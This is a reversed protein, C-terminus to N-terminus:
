LEFQTKLFRSFTLHIIVEKLAYNISFGKAEIKANVIRENCRWMTINTWDVKYFEGFKNHTCRKDEGKKMQCNKQQIENQAKVRGDWFTELTM